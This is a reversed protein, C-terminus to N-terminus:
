QGVKSRYLYVPHRHTKVSTSRVYAVPEMWDKNVAIRALAGWAHPSVPAPMERREWEARFEEMRLTAHTALYARLEDLAAQMWEHNTISTAAIAQDRAQIADFINLQADM